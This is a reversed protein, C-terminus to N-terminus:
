FNANASGMRVKESAQSEREEKRGRRVKVEREQEDGAASPM